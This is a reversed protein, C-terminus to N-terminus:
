KVIKHSDYRVGDGLVQVLYVGKPVDQMPVAIVNNGQRLQVSQKKVLKGSIDIM